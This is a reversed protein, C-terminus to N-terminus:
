TGLQIKVGPCYGTCTLTDGNGVLVKFNPSSLIPLKLFIAVREQIFNHTIGGDVLTQVDLDDIQGGFVYHVLLYKDQWQM